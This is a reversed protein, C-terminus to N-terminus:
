PENRELALCRECTVPTRAPLISWTAVLGCGPQCATTFFGYRDDVALVHVAEDVWPPAQVRRGRADSM